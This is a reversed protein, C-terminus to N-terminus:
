EEYPVIQGNKVTKITLKPWVIDGNKDFTLHDGLAGNYEIEYLGKKISDSEYGENKIATAVIKLTDYGIAEFIGGKEGYRTQFRFQFEETPDFFTSGIIVGEAADGVEKIIQPDDMLSNAMLQTTVGLEKIQKLINILAQQYGAIYILEPNKNKIKVLHSRFDSSDLNYPEKILVEGGLEEIQSSFIDALGKGYDNNVYLIGVRELGLNKVAFEAELGAEFIDSPVTRFVYDGADTLQPNTSYPSVLVIKNEKVIPAIALTVSSCSGGIIVPFKYLSLMKHIASVGEKADCKDDEWSIEVKRGNIGGESNIEDVALEIGKKIKLNDSVAPGSLDLIAGIKIVEEETPRRSVGWWIGAIVVIAVILWIITKNM